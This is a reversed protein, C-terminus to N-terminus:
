PIIVVTFLAFKYINVTKNQLNYSKLSLLIAHM